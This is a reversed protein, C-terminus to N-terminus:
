EVSVISGNEGDENVECASLDFEYILKEALMECSTNGLNHTPYEKKLYEEIRHKLWIFEVDRDSHSVQKYAKIGFMHRHPNRLYSVEDIPCKEWCHIGEYSLSCFITVTKKPPAPPNTGFLHRMIELYNM